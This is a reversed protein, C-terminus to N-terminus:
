AGAGPKAAAKKQTLYLAAAILLVGAALYLLDAASGIDLRLAQELFLMALILLVIKALRDKLDDLDRIVLLRQAVESNEAAKLKGIFLEYLGMAFILMFTAILYLDVVKVVKAVIELRLDMMVADSATVIAPVYRVVRIADVTALLFMVVAVVLAFIVAVLVLARSLWLGREFVREMRAVSGTAAGLEVGESKEQTVAATERVKNPNM